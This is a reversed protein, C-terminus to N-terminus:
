RVDCRLERMCSAACTAIAVAAIAAVVMAEGGVPLWGTSFPNASGPVSRECLAHDFLVPALLWGLGACMPVVRVLMGVYGASMRALVFALIGAALGLSAMLTVRAAVYAGLTMDWGCVYGSLPGTIVCDMLAGIGAGALPAAWACLSVALVLVASLVAAALQAGFVKRGIRSSWQVARMRHLQDSAAVPAMVFMPAAVLWTSLRNLYTEIDQLWMHSLYGRAGGEGELVQLWLDMEYAREHSPLTLIRESLAIDAKLADDPEGGTQQVGYERDLVESSFADFDARTRLDREVAGGLTALDSEFAAEADRAETRVERMEADDISAGFRDAWEQALEFHFTAQSGNPFVAIGPGKGVLFWFVLGSVLLAAFIGPRWIRNLEQAFLSM